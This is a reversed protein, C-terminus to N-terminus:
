LFKFDYMVNSIKDTWFLITQINTFKIGINQIDQVCM